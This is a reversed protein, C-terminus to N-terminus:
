PTPADAGAEAAPATDNKTGAATPAVAGDRRTIKLNDYFVRGSIKQDLELKGALELRLLQTACGEEPVQFSQEMVQWAVAGRLPQSETIIGLNGDDACRIRWTLGSDSVLDESKAELSFAYSGPALRLYQYFNSFATRGQAFDLRAVRDVSGAARPTLRLEVNDIPRYTWDFLRNKLENNFDGDFVLRVQRLETESLANLWIFYAKDYARETALNQLLMALQRSTVPSDAQDLASILAYAAAVDFGGSVIHQIFKDRWPPNTKLLKILATRKDSDGTFSALAPLLTDAQEPRARMLGDLRYLAGDYDRDAMLMQLIVQQTATDRLNRDGAMITLVKASNNDGAAQALAALAKVAQIDLPSRRLIDRQRAMLAEREAATMARLLADAQEPSTGQPAVARDQQGTLGQTLFAITLAGLLASVGAAFGFGRQLRREPRVGGGPFGPERQSLGATQVM